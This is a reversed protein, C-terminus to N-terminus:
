RRHSGVKRRWHLLGALGVALFALTGPESLSESGAFNFQLDRLAFFDGDVVIRSIADGDTAILGVYDLVLNSLGGITELLLDNEDFLQIIANTELSVTQFGVAVVPNAFDLVLAGRFGTGTGDVPGLQSGGPTLPNYQIDTSNLGVNFTTSFQSSLTVDDSFATGAVVGLAVPDGNKDVDFDLAVDLPGGGVATLFNVTSCASSVFPSCAVTNAQIIAADAQGAVGACVALVAFTRKLGSEVPM